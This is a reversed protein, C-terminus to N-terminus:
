HHQRAFIAFLYAARYFAAATGVTLGCWLSLLLNGQSWIETPALRAIFLPVTAVTVVGGLITARLVYALMNRYYISRKARGIFGSEATLLFTYTTFTFGSAVTAVTLIALYLNEISWNHGDFMGIMKPGYAFAAVVATFGSATPYIREWQLWIWDTITTM